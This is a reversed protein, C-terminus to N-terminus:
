FSPLCALISLRTVNYPPMLPACETAGELEPDGSLDRRAEISLPPLRLGKALRLRM